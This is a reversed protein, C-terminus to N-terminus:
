FIRRALRFRKIYYNQFINSEVVGRSSSSHIFYIEDKSRVQTVLGVHTVKRKRKGTAFFVLDGPELDNIKIKKGIKQQADSTRPIPINIAGFSNYLLGSCDMGSRNIGGWKYPTGLYSRATTVLVEVQRDRKSIKKSSACSTSFIIIILLWWYFKRKAM